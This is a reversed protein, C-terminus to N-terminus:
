SLTLSSGLRLNLKPFIRSLSSSQIRKTCLNASVLQPHAPSLKQCGIETRFFKVKMGSVEPDISLSKSSNSSNKCNPRKTNTKLPFLSFSLILPMSVQNGNTKFKRSKANLKPYKILLRNFNCKCLLSILRNVPLIQLPSIKPPSLSSIFSESNEKFKYFKSSHKVIPRKLKPTNLKSHSKIRSLVPTKTLSM